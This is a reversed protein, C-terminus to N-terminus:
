ATCQFPIRIRLVGNEIRLSFHTPEQLRLRNVIRSANIPCSEHHAKVLIGIACERKAIALGIGFIIQESTFNEISTQWLTICVEAVGHGFARVSM